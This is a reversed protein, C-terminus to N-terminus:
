HDSAAKPRTRRLMEEKFRFEPGKLLRVAILSVAAACGRAALQPADSAGGCLFPVRNLQDL